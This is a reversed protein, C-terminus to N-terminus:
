VDLVRTGLDINVVFLRVLLRFLNVDAILLLTIHCASCGEPQCCTVVRKM